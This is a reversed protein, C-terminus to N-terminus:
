VNSSEKEFTVYYAEGVEFLAAAGPNDINMELSGSPTYRWFAKDEETANPGPTVPALKVRQNGYRESSFLEISNCRFKARVKM